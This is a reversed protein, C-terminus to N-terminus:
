LELACDPQPYIAAASPQGPQELLQESFQNIPPHCLVVSLVRKTHLGRQVAASNANRIQTNTRRGNSTLGVQDRAHPVAVSIYGASAGRFNQEIDRGVVGCYTVFANVPSTINTGGRRM